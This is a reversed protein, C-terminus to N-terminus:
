YYLRDVATHRHIQRHTLWTACINVAFTINYKYYQM